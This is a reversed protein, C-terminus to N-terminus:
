IRGNPRLSKGALKYRVRLAKAKCNPHCFKAHKTKAIYDKGCHMCKSEISLPKGFNNKAAHQKHWEIGEASKHWQKAAEIGKTYFEKFKEHNDKIREKAHESLHTFSKVKELNYIENNWTNGDKHHIHYGKERKGNYHEWVYWHMHLPGSTFYRAGPHLTFTRGNFTQYPKGNANIRIEFDRDM